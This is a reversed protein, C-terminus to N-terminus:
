KAWTPITMNDNYEIVEVRFYNSYEHTEYISGCQLKVLFDDAYLYVTKSGNTALDFYENIQTKTTHENVVFDKIKWYFASATNPSLKVDVSMIICDGIPTPEGYKPPEIVITISADPYAKFKGFLQRSTTLEKDPESNFEFGNDLLKQVTDVGLKYTINNLVFENVIESTKYRKSSSTSQKEQILGKKEFEDEDKGITNDRNDEILTTSPDIEHVYYAFNEEVTIKGDNNYDMVDEYIDCYWEGKIQCLNAGREQSTELSSILLYANDDIDSIGGNEEKWIEFIKKLPEIFYEDEVTIEGSEKDLPGDALEPHAVENKYKIVIKKSKVTIDYTTTTEALDGGQVVFQYKTEKVKSTKNKTKSVKNGCGTVIFVFIFMTVLIKLLKKNKM